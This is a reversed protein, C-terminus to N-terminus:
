TATRRLLGAQVLRRLGSRADGGTREAGDSAPEGPRVAAEMAALPFPANALLGAADLVARAEPELGRVSRDFLWGLTHQRGAPDPDSLSPLRERAWAESLYRPDEDGRALLGGAWTLALPLGQLLELVRARVAEPLSRADRKTLRDLLEAADAPAL